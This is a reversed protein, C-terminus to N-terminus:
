QGPQEQKVLERRRQQAANSILAFYIRVESRSILALTAALEAAGDAACAHVQILDASAAERCCWARVRLAVLVQQRM